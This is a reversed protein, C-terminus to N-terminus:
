LSWVEESSASVCLAGADLAQIIDEKSAVMGGTIIPVDIRHNLNSIVRPILAPLVEIMDPKVMKSQTIINNISLHDIIFFRLITILGLKKAPEILGKKTTIIGDAHCVDKIYTLVIEHNSLGVIFDLHILVTKHHEKLQAVISPLTVIDGYLLFVIPIDSQFSKKLAAEDKAAIIIPTNQFDAQDM